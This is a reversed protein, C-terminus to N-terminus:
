SFQVHNRMARIVFGITSWCSVSCRVRVLSEADAIIRNRSIILGVRYVGPFDTKIGALSKPSSAITERGYEGNKSALSNRGSLFTRTSMMADRPLGPALGSITFIPMRSIALTNDWASGMANPMMAQRPTTSDVSEPTPINLDTNSIGSHRPTGSERRLKSTSELPWRCGGYGRLSRKSSALRNARDTM